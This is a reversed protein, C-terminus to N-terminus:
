KEMADLLKKLDKGPLGGASFDRIREARLRRRLRHEANYFLM